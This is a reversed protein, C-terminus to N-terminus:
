SAIQMIRIIMIEAVMITVIIGKKKKKKSILRVM